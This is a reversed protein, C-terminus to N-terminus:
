EKLYWKLFLVNGECIGENNGSCGDSTWLVLQVVDAITSDEHVGFPVRQDEFKVVVDVYPNVRHDPVLRCLHQIFRWCVAASAEAERMRSSITELSINHSNYSMMVHVELLAKYTEIFYWYLVMFLLLLHFVLISRRYTSLSRKRDGGCGGSAGDFAKVSQGSNGRANKNQISSGRTGNTESVSVRCFQSVGFAAQVICLGKGSYHCHEKSGGVLGLTHQNRALSLRFSLGLGLRRREHDFFRLIKNNAVFQRNLQFVQFIIQRCARIIKDPEM